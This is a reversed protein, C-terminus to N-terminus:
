DHSFAEVKDAPKLEDETFSVEFQVTFKVRIPYNYPGDIRTVVGSKDALDKLVIPDILSIKKDDGVDKQVAVISGVKYKM